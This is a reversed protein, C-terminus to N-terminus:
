KDSAVTPRRYKLYDDNPTKAPPMDYRVQNGDWWLYNPAETSYENRMAGRMHADFDADLIEPSLTLQEVDKRTGMAIWSLDVHSTGQNNEKVWFGNADISSVYVGNSNGAPTVTITLQQPDAVMHKFADDFSVYIQGNALKSKGRAFVDATSSSPVYTSVRSGDDMTVLQAIPRNTVTAGDVYLSTRDGRVHMGYVMGNVWGGMVGGYIGLGIHANPQDMGIVIPTQGSTRGTGLGNTHAQGFGYVSYDNGNAAYYGLGGIALGYDYGMVGGSRISTGGAGFVGFKYSGATTANGDVGKVTANFGTGATANVSLGRVGAGSTSTGNYEGQVGAFVTAGATIQGYVGAGDQGSYGNVAWPFAANSVGNMLDGTIVTNTTGIFFEGLNSLRGRVVNNSIFDVHQNTTTGFNGTATIANGGVLWANNNQWTPGGATQTLVQNTAGAPIIVLTGNADAGVLRTNAGALPNVRVNGAVHLRELPINTGIGVNQATAISGAVGWMGVMATLLSYLSLAKKM